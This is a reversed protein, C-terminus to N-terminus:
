LPFPSICIVKGSTLAVIIRGAQTVALGWPVPPAPLAETWLVKGDALSYATVEAPKAVVVANPGVAIALADKCEIDWAAALGQVRPKGWDALFKNELAPMEDRRFCMLRTSNVWAVARDGTPALLTKNVVSPDFVPWQPHAYLPRGAAMVRGGIRYLESGRPNVSGLVNNRSPTRLIAPDNLCRGDALDYLAPSVANGGALHLKGGAILMHGQVSVGTRADADLHGSASNQWKIRGTAADLAYVHTGDFNVIGAAVYAVGGEVLVGSAVPWTSQLTGYVPIRREVPAARFRWLLRGTKAEFCYVHGDGSGVFARGQSIAPPYLVAGGTYAKWVLDGTKANITRVSGDSGGIFVFNGVATPATPTFAATPPVEWMNCPQVPIRATTTVTASHNARFMPWDGPSEALPAIPDNDRPAKELRESEVARPSFNFGGAPGLCTIGYLTLNCDCTSPWWYLLGNAITVGDHCNPRMPSLLDPRGTARDLRTSGEGARCFLADLSGTVRTCARRGVNFEALVKGTLPDLKRAPENDQQGGMGYVGDDALIVQYNDYPHQWLFHGDEASVALLKGIQPGAFYLAKDSCRMYATTRWNTRWDQRKSFPGIADFLDTANEKTKRWVQRGTKADLCTLSSGFSLAFIRGNKMCLARGDIPEAERRKWLVKKTAPDIALLTRGYGWVNEPTNYGPSLPNWPWGHTERKARIVPDRLEAEGVLAYLVGDELAMWKWFTGGSGDEVAIIEDLPKGTAADFVKCSKDDGFYLKTPTAIFTSRHVMLAPPIERRWLLTGNYGNFAALTDLWPEERTKFAIHGFAKFVRGASAIAVQPLPAYRPDALFQTLYPGRAVQDRSLPNNDPGHYPHSWDDAGALAPKVQEKKGLLVKGRPRVVRLAEAEPMGAADGIAVLADAVNNALNLKALPGDEVFVRTGLLGAVDAARRARAVDAEDPLQTYVLLETDKALKLALDVDGLVVAIGRTVGLQQTLPDTAADTRTFVACWLIMVVLLRVSQKM